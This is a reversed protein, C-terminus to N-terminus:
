AEGFRHAGSDSAMMTISAGAVGWSSAFAALFAEAHPDDRQPPQPIEPDPAGIRFDRQSGPKRRRAPGFPAARGFDLSSVPICAEDRVVTNYKVYLAVIIPEDHCHM